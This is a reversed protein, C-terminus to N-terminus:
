HDQPQQDYVDRVTGAAPHRPRHRGDSHAGREVFDLCPSSHVQFNYNTGILNYSQGNFILPNDEYQSYIMGEFGYRFMSLYEFPYFVKPVTELPVFFGGVLLFPNHATEATWLGDFGLEEAARAVAPMSSMEQGFLFLDFQM